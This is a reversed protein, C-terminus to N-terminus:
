RKTFVMTAHDSSCAHYDVIEEAREHWCDRSAFSKTQCYTFSRYFPISVSSGAATAALTTPDGGAISVYRFGSFEEALPEDWLFRVFRGAVGFEFLYHPFLNHWRLTPDDSTVLRNYAALPSSVEAITVRYSRSAFEVPFGACPAKPLYSHATSLDLALTLTYDGPELGIAPELTDLRLYHDKPSASSPRDISVTQTRSHFGDRSVRLTVPGVAQGTLEVRGADDTLKTTGALPGDLVEVLAGGLPRAVRDTVTLRIHTGGGDPATPSSGCGAAVLVCGCTALVVIAFATARESSRNAM